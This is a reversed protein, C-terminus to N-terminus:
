KDGADPDDCAACTWIQEGRRKLTWKLTHRSITEMKLQNTIRRTPDCLLSDKGSGRQVGQEKLIELTHSESVVRNDNIWEEVSAMVTPPDLVLTGRTAADGALRDARENGSVGAHGPCFIWAIRELNSASITSKWDAYLMKKQVKQLTSMSDTVIVARQHNNIMLWTMAESIAKIEMCMSSTTLTTAGSDEGVVVGDVRASFAWGSRVGRKVSGDTFIIADGRRSNEEILTEIEANAAGQAWERSERGITATVTTFRELPDEVVLWDSGKRINEVNCCKNITNTAQNMWETGRKLRSVVQRGVKAHLPNTEDASVRLFAQVQALKHREDMTPFGLLHRMAEASTDRTCGLIARMGENQIVELRQLQSKSLTLLGFGYEVVSLVLTQFLIALIRQCMKARVMTKIATLGKRARSVVRTIHDKGSLTRDFTIGLYKLSHERKLQKNDISVSPMAAQVAHNDLTCWLVCAKDPHLKGNHENCWVGLRDLEEQVSTATRQRNTGQRYVLVDDAFSLVRGPGEMQNSTIGLTYVNFLVPSLASGQPLGPTIETPQSTWSGIRLAVKRKLLAAGIWIILQPDVKLNVLTRILIDYQVRNYADELDLAAILTEEKREFGDYVDSALIAANMWTVKGRRYSGLEPPLINKDELEKALRRAVIKELLKGVTNQMTIIRYAAIRSHDKEPKPVPTLHSDLWDEPIVGSTLSDDLKIALARMEGEEMKNIHEYRVGDPGPATSASQKAVVEVADLGIHQCFSENMFKQEITNLLLKREAENRMDTQQLYRQFLALGKEEDTRRWLDDEGRFDPLSQKRRKNNMHGYFGWFQYLARDTNVERCFNECRTNKSEEAAEKFLRSALKEEAELVKNARDRQRRKLALRKAKWLAETEDNWWLPQDLKARGHQNSLPARISKRLRSLTDDDDVKYIFVRKQKPPKSSRGRKISVTCPLHDSGYNCLAKWTCDVALNLSVLALDIASDSDGERTALRTMSGDNICTLDCGVLADELSIGQPNSILNGWDEGRANLDGCFVTKGPLAEEMEGLKAWEEENVSDNCAYVNIINRVPQDTLEVAQLHLNVSEWQSVDLERHGIGSRVLICQGHGKRNYLTHAFGDLTFDRDGLRTEQFCVVDARYCLTEAM